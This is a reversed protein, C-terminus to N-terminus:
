VIATIFRTGDGDALMKQVAAKRVKRFILSVSKETIDKGRICHTMCNAAFGEMLTFTGPPQKIGFYGPTEQMGLGKCNFSLVSSSFLRISCIPRHFLAVDDKHIGLASGHRVYFNCVVQDIFHEPAWKLNTLTNKLHTILKSVHLPAVESNSLKSGQGVRGKGYTYKYGFFLKVRQLSENHDFSNPYESSKEMSVLLRDADEELRQLAKADFYGLIQKIGIYTGNPFFFTRVTYHEQKKDQFYIRQSFFCRSLALTLNSDTLLSKHKRMEFAVWKKQSSSFFELGPKDKTTRIDVLEEGVNEPVFCYQCRFPDKEIDFSTPLPYCCCYVHIMNNCDDCLLALEEDYLSDCVKCRIRALQAISLKEGSSIVADNNRESINCGPTDAQLDTNGVLRSKIADSWDEDNVNHSGGYIPQNSTKERIRTHEICDKWEETGKGLPGCINLRLTEDEDFSEDYVSKRTKVGLIRCEFWHDRKIKQKKGNKQVWTTLGYLSEYPYHNTVRESTSPQQESISSGACDEFLARISM